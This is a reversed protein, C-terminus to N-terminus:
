VVKDMEKDIANFVVDNDNNTLNVPESLRWYKNMTLPMSFLMVSMNPITLRTEPLIWYKSQGLIEIPRDPIGIEM